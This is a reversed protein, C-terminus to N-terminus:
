NKIAAISAPVAAFASTRLLFEQNEAFKDSRKSSISLKKKPFGGILKEL